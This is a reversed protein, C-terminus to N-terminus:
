FLFFIFYFFCYFFIIFSFFSLFFFLFLAFSLFHTILFYFLINKKYTRKNNTNKHKATKLRKESKPSSPPLTLLAAFNHPAFAREKKQFFFRSFDGTIKNNPSKKIDKCGFSM